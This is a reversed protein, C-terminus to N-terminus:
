SRCSTYALRAILQDANQKGGFIPWQNGSICDRVAARAVVGGTTCPPPSCAIPGAATPELAGIVKASLSRRPAAAVARTARGHSHRLAWALPLAFPHLTTASVRSLRPAVAVREPGM